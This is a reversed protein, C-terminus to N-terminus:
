WCVRGYKVCVPTGAAVKAERRLQEWETADGGGRGAAM